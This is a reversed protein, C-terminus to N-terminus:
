AAEKSAIMKAFDDGKMNSKKNNLRKSCVVLNEYETVGGEEVGLSRPIYHDGALNDESIPEDTYFCKGGQEQWKKLIDARSFSVRPDLLILGREKLSDKWDM